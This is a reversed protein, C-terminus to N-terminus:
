KWTEIVEKVKEIATPRVRMTGTYASDLEGVLFLMFSVLGALLATIIMHLKLSEVHFLYIFSITIIAGIILLAWVMSDLSDYGEYIRGLRATSFENLKTISEALWIQEITDAPYINYYIHWITRVIEVTAQSIQLNGMKEWEDTLVLNMYEKFLTRIPERVEPKFVEADRYLEGLLGAETETAKSAANFKEQVTIITFGLLVAYVVGIIGYAFGSVDHHKKLTESAKLKRVYWLGILSLTVSFVTVLIANIVWEM